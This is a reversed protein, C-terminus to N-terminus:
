NVHSLIANTLYLGRKAVPLAHSQKLRSDLRVMANHNMM